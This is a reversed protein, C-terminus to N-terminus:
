LNEVSKLMEAIFQVRPRILLSRATHRVVKLRADNPDLGGAQLADDKFRYEYGTADDRTTATATKDPEDAAGTSAFTLLSIAAALPLAAARLSQPKSLSM